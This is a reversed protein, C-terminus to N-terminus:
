TGNADSISHGTAKRVAKIEGTSGGPVWESSPPCPALSCEAVARPPVRIM